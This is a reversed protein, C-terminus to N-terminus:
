TIGTRSHPSLARELALRCAVRTTSILESKKKRLSESEFFLTFSPHLILELM